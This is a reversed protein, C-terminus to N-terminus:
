KKGYKKSRAMNKVHASEHKEWQKVLRKSTSKKPDVSRTISGGAKAATKEMKEFSKMSKKFAMGSVKKAAYKVADDVIGQSNLGTIAPKGKAM